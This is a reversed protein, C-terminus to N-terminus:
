LLALMSLIVATASLAVRFKMRMRQSFKTKNYFEARGTRADLVMVKKM